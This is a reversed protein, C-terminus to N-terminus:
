KDFNNKMVGAQQQFSDNVNNNSYVGLPTNYQAHVVGSTSSPGSGTSSTSGPRHQRTSQLVNYDVDPM